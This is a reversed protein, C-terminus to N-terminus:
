PDDTRFRSCICLPPSVPLLVAYLDQTPGYPTNQTDGSLRFTVIKLRYLIAYMICHWSEPINFIRIHLNPEIDQLRHGIDAARIDAAWDNDDFSNSMHEDTDFFWFDFVYLVMPWLVM